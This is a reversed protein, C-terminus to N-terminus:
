QQRAPRAPYPTEGSRQSQPVRGLPFTGPVFRDHHCRARLGDPGVRRRFLRESLTGSRPYDASPRLRRLHALRARLECPGLHQALDSRSDWSSLAQATAGAPMSRYRAPKRSLYAPRLGHVPVSGLLFFEKGQFRRRLTARLPSFIQDSSLGDTAYFDIQWFEDARRRQLLQPLMLQAPKSNLDIGRRMPSLRRLKLLRPAIFQFVNPCYQNEMDCKENKM